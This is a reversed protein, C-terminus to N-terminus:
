KITPSCKRQLNALLRRRSTDGTGDWGAEHRLDELDQCMLLSFPVMLTLVDDRLRACRGPWHICSSPTQVQRHLNKEYYRCHRRLIMLRWTNWTNRNASLSNRRRGHRSHVRWRRPNLARVWLGEEDSLGLRVLTDEASGWDGDLICQRFKSVDPTEM